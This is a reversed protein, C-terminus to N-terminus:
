LHKSLKLFIFVTAYKNINKLFNNLIGINFIYNYKSVKISSKQLLSDNLVEVLVRPQFEHITLYELNSKLNNTKSKELLSVDTNSLIKKKRKSVSQCRKRPTYKEHLLLNLDDTTSIESSKPSTVISQKVNVINETDNLLSKEETTRKNSFTISEQIDSVVLTEINSDVNQTNRKTGRLTACHVSKKSIAKIKKPLISDNTTLINKGDLNSKIAHEIEESDINNDLSSDQEISRTNSSIKFVQTDDEHIFPMELNSDVDSIDRMGVDSKSFRVVKKPLVRDKKLLRIGDTTSKEIQESKENESDNLSSELEKCNSNNSRTLMQSDDNCIISKELDSDVACIKRKTKKPISHRKMKKSPVIKKKSMNLKKKPLKDKNRLPFENSQEFKELNDSDELPSEVEINKSNCSTILRQTDNRQMVPIRYDSDIIDITKRSEKFNLSRRRKKIPLMLDNTTLIDNSESNDVILPKIEGVNRPNDLSTKQVKKKTSNSTKFVKANDGHVVSTEVNTHDFCINSVMIKPISCYVSMKSFDKETNSLISNCQTLKEENEYNVESSQKIPEIKDSDETHPEQKINETNGSILEQTDDEHVVTTGIDPYSTKRKKLKSHCKKKKSSIKKKKKKPVTLGYNILNDESGSSILIVEGIVKSDDLLLNRKIKKKESSTIVRQTNDGDVVSTEVDSNVYSFQKRTKKPTYSYKRKKSVTNKKKHLILDNATLTDNSGQELQRTNRSTTVTQTEDEHDVSTEVNRDVCSIKIKTGNSISRYLCKEPINKKKNSLKLGNTIFKRKSKPTAENIQKFEEYNEYENSSSEEVHCTKKSSM